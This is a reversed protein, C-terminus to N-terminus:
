MVNLLKETLATMGPNKGAKRPQVLVLCLRLPHLNPDQKFPCLATSRTFGQIGDLM